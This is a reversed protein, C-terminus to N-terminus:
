PTIATPGFRISSTYSPLASPLPKINMKRLSIDIQCATLQEIYM